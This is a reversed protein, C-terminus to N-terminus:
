DLNLACIMSESGVRADNQKALGIMSESQEGRDRLINIVRSAIIANAVCEGFQKALPNVCHGDAVLSLIIEISQRMVRRKACGDPIAGTLIDDVLSQCALGSM